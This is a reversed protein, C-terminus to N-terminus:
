SKFFFCSTLYWCFLCKTNKANDTDCTRLIKELGLFIIDAFKIAM